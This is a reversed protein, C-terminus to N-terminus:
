AYRVNVSERSYPLSEDPTNGPACKEDHKNCLKFYDIIASFALRPARMVKGMIIEIGRGGTRNGHCRWMTSGGERMLALVKSMDPRQISIGNGRFCTERPRSGAHPSTKTQICEVRQLVHCLRCLVCTCRTANNAFLPVPRPSSTWSSFRTDVPSESVQCNM